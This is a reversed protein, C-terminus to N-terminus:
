DIVVLVRAPGNVKIEKDEYPEAWHETVGERKALEEVLEYTKYKKLDDGYDFATIVADKITECSSKKEVNQISESLIQYSKFIFNRIKNRERASISKRLRITEDFIAQYLVADVKKKDVETFVAEGILNM